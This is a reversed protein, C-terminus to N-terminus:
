LGTKGSPGPPGLSLAQVTITAETLFPTKAYEAFNSIVNM